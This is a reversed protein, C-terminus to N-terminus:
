LSLPHLQSLGCRRQTAAESAGARKHKQLTPQWSVGHSKSTSNFYQWLVHWLVVYYLTTKRSATSLSASFSPMSPSLGTAWRQRTFDTVHM